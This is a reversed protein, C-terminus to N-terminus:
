SQLIAKYASFEVLLRWQAGSSYAKFCWKKLKQAFKTKFFIHSSFYEFVIFPNNGVHYLSLYSSLLKGACKNYFVKNTDLYLYLYKSQCRWKIEWIVRMYNSERRECNTLIIHTDTQCSACPIYVIYYYISIILLRVCKM